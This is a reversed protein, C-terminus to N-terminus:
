LPGAFGAGFLGGGGGFPGAGGQFGGPGAGPAPQTNFPTQGGGFNPFTGPAGGPQSGGGLRPGGGRGNGIGENGTVRGLGNYNLALDLVSNTQSGGVWPRQDAPTLSVAAAWSLSVGLLVMSALGLH